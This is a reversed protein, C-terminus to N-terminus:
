SDGGGIMYKIYAFVNIEKLKRLPKLLIFLPSIQMDNERWARLCEVNAKYINKLNQNSIGGLQMKIFNEDIYMNNIKNKALFRLMLEYDGAIKYSPNFGGFKEFIEKKVYFTPHAPHLGKKFDSFNLNQGKIQRLIKPSKTSDQSIQFSTLNASDLNKSNTSDITEALGGVNVCDVYELNACISEVSKAVPKNFAWNILSLINSSAFYDDSNLFGLLDGSSANIGRNFAEYIGSDKQSFIKLTINKAEYKPRYSQIIELTLDSSKGDIIIHEINNYDQSLVSELTNKITPESNLTATIISIKYNNISIKKM